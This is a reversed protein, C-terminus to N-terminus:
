WLLLMIKIKLNILNYIELRYWLQPQPQLPVVHYALHNNSM